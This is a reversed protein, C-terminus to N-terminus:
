DSAPIYDVWTAPSSTRLVSGRPLRLPRVFFYKAKWAPDFERIRILPARRGDPYRAELEYAGAAPPSAYVALVMLDAPLEYDGGDMKLSRVTAADPEFYLGLRSKDTMAKGDDRWTKRYHIDVALTAGAPLEEALGDPLFALGQGPLWTAVPRTEAECSGGIRITVDHVMAVNDPQFEFAAVRRAEPLRTPLVVCANKEIEEAGVTVAAEPELVLDPERHMAVAGAESPAEREVLQGEPTGGSAWDVLADIEEATLSRADRFEGYGEEPLWPPMRGELVETKISSAWPFAQQYSLLSMPAIGGGRHCDGCHKELIPLVDREYTFRSPEVEHALLLAASGLAFAFAGLARVRVSRKLIM